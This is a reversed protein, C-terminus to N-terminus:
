FGLVVLTPNLFLGADVILIFKPILVGGNCHQDRYHVSHTWVRFVVVCSQAEDKGESQNKVWTECTDSQSFSVNFVTVEVLSTSNGDKFVALHLFASLFFM